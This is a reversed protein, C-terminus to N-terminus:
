RPVPFHWQFQRCYSFGPNHISQTNQDNKACYPPFLHRKWAIRGQSINGLTCATITKKFSSKSRGWIIKLFNPRSNSLFGDAFSTKKFSSWCKGLIIVLFHPNRRRQSSLPVGTQPRFQIRHNGHGFYFRGNGFCLNEDDFSRQKNQSYRYHLVDTRHRAFADDHGPAILPLMCFLYLECASRTASCYM